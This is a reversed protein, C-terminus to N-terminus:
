RKQHRRLARPYHFDEKDAFAKRVREIHALQADNFIKETTNFFRTETVHDGLMAALVRRDYYARRLTKYHATTQM